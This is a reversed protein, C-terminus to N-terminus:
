HTPKNEQHLRGTMRTLVILLVESGTKLGLVAAETISYSGALGYLILTTDIDKVAKAIAISLASDKAAMNYLAGHPKVHHLKAGKEKVIKLLSNIQQTVL